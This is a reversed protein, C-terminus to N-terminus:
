LLTESPQLWSLLLFKENVNWNYQLNTWCRFNVCEILMTTENESQIPFIFYGIKYFFPRCGCLKMAADVSCEMLCLNQTYVGLPYSRDSTVEKDFRCKRTEVGFLKTRESSFIENIDADVEIDTRNSIKRPSIKMNLIDNVGHFYKSPLFLNIKSIEWEILFFITVYSSLIYDM